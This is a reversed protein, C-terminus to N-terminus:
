TAEGFAAVIVLPSESLERQAHGELGSFHVLFPPLWFPEGRRGYFPVERNPGGDVPNVPQTAHSSRSKAPRRIASDGVTIM